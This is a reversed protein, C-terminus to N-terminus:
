SAVEEYLPEAIDTEPAILARNPYRIARLCLILLPLAGGAIFLRDGPLRAWELANM